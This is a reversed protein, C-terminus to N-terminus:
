GPLSKTLGAQIIRMWCELVERDFSVDVDRTQVALAADWTMPSRYPRQSTLAEFVDVVSCIKAWPHIQDGVVGVPYGRGDLREHHQYVMMLQGESLDPRMALRRFGVLPHSKIVAFEDRTLKATKCLISEPIELKGLDHLLGGAAILSVEDADHGMASALVGAYCAVNTSHTFTAYDHHLVEMLDGFAFDEQCVINSVMQGLETASEVARGVNEVQLSSGLIDRVVESIVGVKNATPITPDSSRDAFQRLYDQYTATADKSIYLRNVGRVRLRELDKATVPYESGRYLILRESRDDYQFLNLGMVTEPLLTVVSIAICAEGSPGRILDTGLLM